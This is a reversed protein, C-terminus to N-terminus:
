FRDADDITRYASSVSSEDVRFYFTGDPFLCEFIVSKKDKSVGIPFSPFEPYIRKMSRKASDIVNEDLLNLDYM